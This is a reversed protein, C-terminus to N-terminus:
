KISLNSYFDWLSPVGYSQQNAMTGLIGKNQVPPPTTDKGGQLKRLAEWEDRAQARQANREAGFADMEASSNKALVNSFARETQAHDILSSVGGFTPIGAISAATDAVGGLVKGATFWGGSKEQEVQDQLNKYHIDYRSQEAPTLAKRYEGDMVSNAVDGANSGAFATVAGAAMGAYPNIKGFAAAVKEAASDALIGGATNGFASRGYAKELDRAASVKLKEDALRKELSFGQLNGDSDYVANSFESLQGSTGSGGALGGKAKAAAEGITSRKGFNSNTPQPKTPTEKNTNKAAAEAARWDRANGDSDKGGGYIHDKDRDSWSNYGNTIHAEAVPDFKSM